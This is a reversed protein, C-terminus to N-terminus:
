AKAALAELLKQELDAGESLASLDIKGSAMLREVSQAVARAAAERQAKELIAQAAKLDAKLQREEAVFGAQRAAWAKAEDARRKEFTEFAKELDAVRRAPEKNGWPYLTKAEEAASAEGKATKKPKAAKAAKGAAEHANEGGTNEDGASPAEADALSTETSM